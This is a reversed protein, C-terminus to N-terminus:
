LSPLVAARCNYVKWDARAWTDLPWTDRRVLVAVGCVHLSKNTMKTVSTFYISVITNKKDDGKVVM